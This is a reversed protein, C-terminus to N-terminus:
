YLRTDEVTAVRGKLCSAVMILIIYTIFSSTFYGVSSGVYTFDVASIMGAFSVTTTTACVGKGVLISQHWRACCRRPVRNANVNTSRSVVYSVNVM